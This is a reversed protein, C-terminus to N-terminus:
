DPPTVLTRAPDQLEFLTWPFRAASAFDILKVQTAGGQPDTITWGALALPPDTFDLTIQGQARKTGDRAVISFGDSHSVVKGVVVGRDIRIDKSLLLGLPTMGLPYAQITKLRTNVVAVRFGNSAIVLGSPSDYEFRAKGPRQLYFAGGSIAGRPDTQVFRGKASKLGQLYSRARAVTAAQDLSLGDTPASARAALSWPLAGLASVFVRRDPSRTTM